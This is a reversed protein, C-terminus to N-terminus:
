FGLVKWNSTWIHCGQDQTTKLEMFSSSSM